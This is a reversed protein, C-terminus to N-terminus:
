IKLIKTIQAKKGLIDKVEKRAEASKQATSFVRQKQRQSDTAYVVFKVEETNGIGFLAGEQQYKEVIGLDRKLRTLKTELKTYLERLAKREEETQIRTADRVNQNNIRQSIIELDKSIESIQKYLHGNPPLEELNKIDKCPEGEPCEPFLREKGLELRKRILEEFNERKIKQDSAGGYVWNFIDKEHTNTMKSNYKKRLVGTWKAFMQIRPFQSIIDENSLIEIFKGKSDLYALQELTKEKGRFAESLAKPTAPPINKQLDGERMLRYAKLDETLSERTAARNAEVRAFQIAEPETGTFFRAPIDKEKRRKMGELRSHGSLVFVKNKSADFWVVIPDFKNPNYNEAVAQASAESFHDTRNQFRLPDTYIKAIPYLYAIPTSEQLIREHDHEPQAEGIYSWCVCDTHPEQECEIAVGTPLIKRAKAINM